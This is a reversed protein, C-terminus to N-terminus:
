RTSETVIKEITETIIKEHETALNSQMKKLVVERQDVPLGYVVTMLADEIKSLQYGDRSSLDMLPRGYARAFALSYDNMLKGAGWDPHSFEPRLLDNCPFKVETLGIRSAMEGTFTQKAASELTVGRKVVVEHFQDTNTTYPYSGRWYANIKEVDYGREHFAKIASLFLESGRGYSERDGGQTRVTFQMARDGSLNANFLVKQEVDVHYDLKVPNTRNSIESGNFYKIEYIHMWDSFDRKPKVQSPVSGYGLRLAYEQWVLDSSYGSMNVKQPPFSGVGFRTAYDSWETKPLQHETVVKISSKDSIMIGPKLTMAEDAIKGASAAMSRAKTLEVVPLFYIAQEGAAFGLREFNGMVGHAHVSAAARSIEAQVFDVPHPAHALNMDGGPHIISEKLNEALKQASDLPHPANNLNQDGATLQTKAATLLDGLLGQVGHLAGKFASGSLRQRFGFFTFRESEQGLYNTENIAM